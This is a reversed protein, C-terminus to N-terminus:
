LPTCVGALCGFGDGTCCANAVGGVTCVLEPPCCVGDGTACVSGVACCTNSPLCLRPLPCCTNDPGCGEGPPCTCPISGRCGDGVSVNCIGDCRSGVPRPQCPPPPPDPRAARARRTQSAANENGGSADAIVIGDDAATSAVRGGTLLGAMLGFARRRSSSKGMVQALQDFRRHDVRDGGGNGGLSLMKSTTYEVARLVKSVM